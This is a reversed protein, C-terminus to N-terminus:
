DSKKANVSKKMVKDALMDTAQKLANNALHAYRQTTTVNSHGILKGIVELGVGNSVLISAFTHRLDHIKANKIEAKDCIRAWFRKIDQLHAGLRPNFFLYEKTSIIKKGTSSIQDDPTIKKKMAKVIELVEGNLPTYTNKNQKTLIAPKLWVGTELNFDEWRASLVEGKRSGTLLILKVANVNMTDVMEEENLVEFLKKLENDSLYRERKHEPFNKIDQTPNKAVIDWSIATNFMTKLLRLLRNGMIPTESFSAHFKEVERKTISNIKLSGFEPLIYKELYWKQYSEFTGKRLSKERAKMFDKSFERVTPTSNIERKKELPDYGKSIEGKLQTAIDRAASCSLEPYGGITCKRERGNIVYRLVFSKADNNTIRIGFGTIRDDWHIKHKTKPTPLSKILRDNLNSMIIQKSKTDTQHGDFVIIL